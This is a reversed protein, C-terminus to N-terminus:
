GKPNFILSYFVAFIIAASIGASTLSFMGTLLGLFGDTEVATIVGQVLQNGFSAILTSAGGGFIDVLSDYLGFGGLIGGLVTLGTLVHAPTLKTKDLIIQCLACVAGGFLFVKFYLFLDM